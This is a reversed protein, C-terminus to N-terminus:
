ADSHPLVMPACSLPSPHRRVGVSAALGRTPMHAGGYDRMAAVSTHATARVPLVIAM